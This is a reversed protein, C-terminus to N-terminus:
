YQMRDHKTGMTVPQVDVGHGLHRLRRGPPPLHKPLEGGAEVPVCDCGTAAIVREIDEPGIKTPDYGVRVVDATWDLRVDHVNPQARLAEEVTTACGPCHVGGLKFASHEVSSTEAHQTPRNM